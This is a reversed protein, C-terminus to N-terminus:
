CRVSVDLSKRFLAQVYRFKRKEVRRKKDTRFEHREGSGSWLLWDTELIATHKGTLGLMTAPVVVVIVVILVSSSPRRLHVTALLSSVDHGPGPRVQQLLLLLLLLL